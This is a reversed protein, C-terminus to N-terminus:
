NEDKRSASAQLYNELLLVAALQDIVQRRRRRRVNGELLAREAQVTTLREDWFVPKVGCDRGLRTGFEMIKEAEPGMEGNMHRPLGILLGSCQHKQFLATLYALDQALTQRQYVELGQATLGLPDSLAVGIRKEGVDLAMIRQREEM